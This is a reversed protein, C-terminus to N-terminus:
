AGKTALAIADRAAKRNANLWKMFQEQTFEEGDKFGQDWLQLASLMTPAAAILRANARAEDASRGHVGADDDPDEINGYYVIVVEDSDGNIGPLYGPPPMDDVVSWPGRTHTPVTAPKKPMIRGREPFRIPRSQSVNM